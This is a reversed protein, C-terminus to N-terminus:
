NTLCLSLKVKGICEIHRVWIKRGFTTERPIDSSVDNHLGLKREENTVQDKKSEFSRMVKKNEFIRV